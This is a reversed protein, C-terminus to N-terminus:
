HVASRDNWNRRSQQKGAACACLLDLEIAARKKDDGALQLRPLINPLRQARRSTGSQDDHIKVRLPQQEETVAYGDGRRRDRRSLGAVLSRGSYERDKLLILLM